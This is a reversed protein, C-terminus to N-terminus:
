KEAVDGSLSLVRRAFPFNSVKSSGLKSGFALFLSRFNMSHFVIWWLLLL